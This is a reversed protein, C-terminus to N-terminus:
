HWYIYYRADNIEQKEITSLTGFQKILQESNIKQPQFNQLSVEPKPPLERFEANRSKYQAVDSVDTSDLLTKLGLILQSIETMKHQVINEQKTILSLNRSDIDDIEFQMKNIINDIERHWIEGQAKLATTLLQSNKKLDERQKIISSELEQWKLYVSTELEQLDIKVIEHKRDYYEIIDVVYHNKHNKSSVCKVCVSFDCEDCFLECQKSHISCMPYRLTSWFQKHSVVNHVKSEDIIHKEVCDKCLDIHCNECYMPAVTFVCLTCRIVDQGSYNPDM